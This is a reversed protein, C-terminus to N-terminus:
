LRQIERLFKKPTEGRPDMEEFMDFDNNSGAPGDTGLGVAVGRVILKGIPAIGSSLMM